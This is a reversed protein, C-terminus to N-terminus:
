NPDDCDSRQVIIECGSQLGQVTTLLARYTTASYIPTALCNLISDYVSQMGGGSTMKWLKQNIVTQGPLQPTVLTMVDFPGGEEFCQSITFTCAALTPPHGYLERIGGISSVDVEDWHAGNDVLPSGITASGSGANMLRNGLVHALGAAHGVEHLAVSYFHWEDNPMGATSKQYNWVPGSSDFTLTRTTSNWEGDTSINSWEVQIDAPSGERFELGFHTASWADFADRIRSKANAPIASSLDYQVVNLVAGENIYCHGKDFSGSEDRRYAHNDWCGLSSYPARFEFAGGFDRNTVHNHASSGDKTGDLEWYITNSDNTHATLSPHGFVIISHCICLVSLLIRLRNARM